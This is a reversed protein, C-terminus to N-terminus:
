RVKIVDPFNEKMIRESAEDLFENEKIPYKKYLSECLKCGVRPAAFFNCFPHHYVNDLLYQYSIEEEM